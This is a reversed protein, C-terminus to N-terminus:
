SQKMAEAQWILNYKIQKLSKLQKWCEIRNLM